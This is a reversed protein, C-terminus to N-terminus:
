KLLPRALAVCVIGEVGANKLSFACSNLTSGSTCVDDVLLVKKGKFFNPVIVNFAGEVNKQREQIPLLTQSLTKRHRVLIKNEITLPIHKALGQSLIESQNYGRERQRIKHLPVPVMVSDNWGELYRKLAEGAKVGLLRGLRKGRKYKVIHVLKEMDATYDWCTLVEDFHIEGELHHFDQRGRHVTVTMSNILRDMCQPCFQGNEEMKMDCLPCTIPYIFDIICNLFRKLPNLKM